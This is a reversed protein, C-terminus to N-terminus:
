QNKFKSQNWIKKEFGNTTYQMMIKNITVSQMEHVVSIGGIVCGMWQLLGRQYGICTPLLICEPLVLPACIRVLSHTLSHSIKQIFTSSTQLWQRSLAKVGVSAAWRINYFVKQINGGRQRIASFTFSSRLTSNIPKLHDM